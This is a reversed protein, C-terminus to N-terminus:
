LRLGYIVSRSPTVLAYRLAVHSLLRDGHLTCSEDTKIDVGGRDRDGNGFRVALDAREAGNRVLRLGQALEEAPEARRLAQADAVFGAGAAVRQVPLEGLEADGARDDRGGEDGDAGAIADLGIAAVRRLQSRFLTTYPFLTSRPPRRIMLFFFFFSVSSVM